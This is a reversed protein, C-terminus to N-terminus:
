TSFTNMYIGTILGVSIIVRSYNNLTFNLLFRNHKIIHSFSIILLLYTLSPGKGRLVQAAAIKTLAMM